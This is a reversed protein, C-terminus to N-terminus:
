PLHPKRHLHDLTQTEMQNSYPLTKTYLGPGGDPVELEILEYGKDLEWLATTRQSQSTVWYAISKGM